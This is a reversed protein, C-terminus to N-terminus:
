LYGECFCSLEDSGEPFVLLKGAVLAVANGHLYEKGNGSRGGTCIYLSDVRRGKGEVVLNTREFMEEFQAHSMCTAILAPFLKEGTQLLMTDIATVNGILGNFPLAASFDSLLEKRSEVNDGWVLEVSRQVQHYAYGVNDHLTNRM